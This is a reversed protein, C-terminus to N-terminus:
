DDEAGVLARREELPREVPIRALRYGADLDDDGVVARAGLRARQDIPQARLQREIQTVHPVLVAAEAFAFDEVVCDSGGFGVVQDESVAITDRSVVEHLGVDLQRLRFMKKRPSHDPQRRLQTM